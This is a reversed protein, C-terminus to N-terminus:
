HRHESAALDNILEVLQPEGGATGVDASYKGNIALFPVGSV